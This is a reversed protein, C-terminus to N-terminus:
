VRERAAGYCFVPTFDGLVPRLRDGLRALMLAVAADPCCVYAVQNDNDYEVFVGHALQQAWFFQRVDM